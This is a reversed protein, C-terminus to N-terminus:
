SRSTRGFPLEYVAGGSLRWPRANQSTQWLTPERDYTEVTRNETVRRAAFAANASLGGLLPPHRTIELAHDKVIGLPLNAYTLGSLQPYGRLLNQRQM